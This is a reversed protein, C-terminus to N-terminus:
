KQGSAETALEAVHRRHADAEEQEEASGPAPLGGDAGAGKRAAAVRAVRRHRADLMKATLAELAEKRQLLDAMLGRLEDM